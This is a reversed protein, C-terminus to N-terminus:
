LDFVHAQCRIGGVKCEVSGFPLLHLASGHVALIGLYYSQGGTLMMLQAFDLLLLWTLCAWIFSDGLLCDGSQFRNLKDGNGKCGVEAVQQQCCDHLLIPMIQLLQICCLRFAAM